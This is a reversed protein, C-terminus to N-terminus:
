VLVVKPPRKIGDPVHGLFASAPAIGVPSSGAPLSTWGSFSPLMVMGVSCAACVSCKGDAHHISNGSHDHSDVTMAYTIHDMGAEMAHHGSAHMDHPMVDVTQMAQHMAPACALQTAAAWGQVPLALALLWLLATKVIRNM